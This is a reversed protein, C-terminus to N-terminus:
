KFIISPALWLTVGPTVEQNCWFKSQNIEMGTATSNHLATPVAVRGKIHLRHIPEHRERGGERVPMTEHWERGRWERLMEGGGLFFGGCGPLCRGGGNYRPDQVCVM